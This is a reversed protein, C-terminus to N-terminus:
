GGSGGGSGGSKSGTGSSATKKLKDDTEEIGKLGKESLKGKEHTTPLQTGHASTSPKDLTASRANSEVFRVRQPLVVQNASANRANEIHA